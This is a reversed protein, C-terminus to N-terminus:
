FPVMRLLTNIHLVMCLSRPLAVDRSSTHCHLPRLLTVDLIPYTLGQIGLFHSNFHWMELSTQLRYFQTLCLKEQCHCMELIAYLNRTYRCSPRSLPVDRSPHICSRSLICFSRSIDCRYIM